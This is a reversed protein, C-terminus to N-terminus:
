RNLSTNSSTNSRYYEKSQLNVYYVSAFFIFLFVLVKILEYKFYSILKFPGPNLFLAQPAKLSITTNQM